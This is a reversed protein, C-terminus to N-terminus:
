QQKRKIKTSEYRKDIFTNFKNNEVANFEKLLSNQRKKISQSISHGPRKVSGKIRQGLVANRFHKTTIRNFINNDDGNELKNALRSKEM